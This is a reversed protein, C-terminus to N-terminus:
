AAEEESGLLARRSGGHSFERLDLDADSYVRKRQPFKMAIIKTSAGSHDHPQEALPELYLQPYSPFGRFAAGVIRGYRSKLGDFDYRLFEYTAPNPDTALYTRVLAAVQSFFEPSHCRQANTGDDRVMQRLGTRLPDIHYLEHVVTDLKAMWSDAGAYHFRKRSHELRQDCFRPLSFSILYDLRRKGLMVDPTKAVFWESRRTVTGASDRWFYYGPESPPLCLCHCTAYAGEAGTRGFRAFTMVSAPDIFSLPEVRAVIDQMLSHLHDTYNIM